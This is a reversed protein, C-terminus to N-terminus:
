ISSEKAESAKTQAVVKKKSEVESVEGKPSCLELIKLETFKQRHGRTRRYGKRRKKKFVLVKRALSQRIVVAKVKSNKLQSRDFIFETESGFAVVPIEMSDKPSQNQFPVRIFDGAKVKFQQNGLRVIAFM